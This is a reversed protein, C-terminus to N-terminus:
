SSQFPKVKQNPAPFRSAEQSGIQIDGEDGAVGGRQGISTVDALVHLEQKVPQDLCGVAININGLLPIHFTVAM